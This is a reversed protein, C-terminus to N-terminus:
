RTTVSVRVYVRAGGSVPVPSRRAIDETGNPNTLDPPVAATLPTWNTMDTSMEPTVIVDDSASNRRFRLVLYTDPTTGVTVTEFQASIIGDTEDSSPTLGLGYEALNTLGNGNSDDSMGTAINNRAAWAAFSDADTGGPTGGAAVSARWNAPLSPDPDAVPNILVLTTGGGDPSTPWPAIDDFVFDFIDSGNAALLELREGANSLNSANAFVGAVPVGPHRASFAAQNSM